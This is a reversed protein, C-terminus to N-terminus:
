VAKCRVMVTKKNMEVYELGMEKTVFGFVVGNTKCHIPGMSPCVYGATNLAQEVYAKIIDEIHM